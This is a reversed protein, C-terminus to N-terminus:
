IKRLQALNVMQRCTNGIARIKMYNFNVVIFVHSFEASSIMMNHPKLYMICEYLLVILYLFLKALDDAEIDDDKPALFTHNAPPLVCLAPPLHLLQARLYLRLELQGVSEPLQPLV